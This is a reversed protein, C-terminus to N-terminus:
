VKIFYFMFLKDAHTQHLGFVSILKIFMSVLTFDNFTRTHPTHLAIHMAVRISIEKVSTTMHESEIFM